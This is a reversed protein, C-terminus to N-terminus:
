FLKSENVLSMNSLYYGKIVKLPGTCGTVHLEGSALFYYCSM